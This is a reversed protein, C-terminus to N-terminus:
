EKIVCFGGCGECLGPLDVRCLNWVIRLESTELFFNLAYRCHDSCPNFLRQLSSRRKRDIACALHEGRVRVPNLLISISLNRRSVDVGTATHAQRFTNGPVSLARTAARLRRERAKRPPGSKPSGLSSWPRWAATPKTVGHRRSEIWKRNSQEAIYEAQIGQVVGGKRM